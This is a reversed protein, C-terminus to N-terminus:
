SAETSAAGKLWMDSTTKSGPLGKSSRLSTLRECLLSREPSWDRTRASTYEAGPQRRNKRSAPADGSSSSGNAMPRVDQWRRASLLLPAIGYDLNRSQCPTVGYPDNPHLIGSFSLAARSAMSRHRPSTEAVACSSPPAPMSLAFWILASMPEEALSLPPARVVVSARHQSEGPISGGRTPTSAM